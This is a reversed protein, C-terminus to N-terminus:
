PNSWKPPVWQMRLDRLEADSVETRVLKWDLLSVENRFVPDCSLLCPETFFVLQDGQVIPDPLPQEAEIVAPRNALMAREWQTMWKSLSSLSIDVGLVIGVANIAISNAERLERGLTTDVQRALRDLELLSTVELVEGSQLRLYVSRPAHGRVNHFALHGTGFREYDAPVFGDFPSEIMTKELREFAWFVWARDGPTLTTKFLVELARYDRLITKVFDDSNALTLM